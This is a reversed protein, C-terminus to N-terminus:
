VALQSALGSFDDVLVDVSFSPTDVKGNSWEQPRGVFATRLGQSTAAFLDSAHCAVMMAEDPKVRLYTPVLQYVRPDPKYTKVLETSLICDFPLRASRAIDVLHAM